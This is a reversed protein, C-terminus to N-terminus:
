RKQYFKRFGFYIIIYLPTLALLILAWIVSFPLAEWFTLLSLAVGILATGNKIFNIAWNKNRYFFFYVFISIVLYTMIGINISLHALNYYELKAHDPLQLIEQFKTNGLGSELFTNIHEASLLVTKIFIIFLLDGLFCSIVTFTKFSKKNFKNLISSLLNKM